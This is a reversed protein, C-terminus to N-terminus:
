RPASRPRHRASSGYGLESRRFRAGPQPRRLTQTVVEALPRQKTVETEFATKSLTRGLVLWVEREARPNAIVRRVRGWHELPRAPAGERLRKTTGNIGTAKWDFQWRSLDPKTEELPQLYLLNKIAQGSVTQLASASFKSGRESLDGKAHVFVVREEGECLIFDAVERGMDSCFVFDAKPVIDTFASPATRLDSPAIASVLGFISKADWSGGM